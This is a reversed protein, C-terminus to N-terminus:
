SIRYVEPTGARIKKLRKSFTNKATFYLSIALVIQRIKFNNFTKFISYYLGSPPLITLIQRFFYTVWIKKWKSFIIKWKKKLKQKHIKLKSNAKSILELEMCWWDGQM